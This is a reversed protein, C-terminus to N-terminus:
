QFTDTHFHKVATQQTPHLRKLDFGVAQVHNAADNAHLSTSDANRINMVSVSRQWDDPTM